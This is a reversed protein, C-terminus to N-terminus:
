KSNCRTRRGIEWDMCCDGRLKTGTGRYPKGDKDEIGTRSLRRRIRESVKGRKRGAREETERGGVRKGVATKTLEM